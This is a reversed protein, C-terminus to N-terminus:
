ARHQPNEQNTKDVYVYKWAVGLFLRNIEDIEKYSHATHYEQREPIYCSAFLLKKNGIM